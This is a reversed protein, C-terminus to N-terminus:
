RSFVYPTVKQVEEFDVDQIHAVKCPAPTPFQRRRITVSLAGGGEM